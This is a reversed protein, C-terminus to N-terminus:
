CLKLNKLNYKIIIINGKRTRRGFERLFGEGSEKFHPRRKSQDNHNCLFIHICMYLRLYTM